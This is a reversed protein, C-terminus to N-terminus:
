PLYRNFQKKIKFTVQLWGTQFLLANMTQTQTRTRTHSDMCIYKICDSQIEKGERCLMKGCVM